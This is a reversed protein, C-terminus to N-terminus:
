DEIPAEIKTTFLTWGIWFALSLMGLFGVAVPTALAWYSKKRVGLAFLLGALLAGGCISAGYKQPSERYRPEQISM